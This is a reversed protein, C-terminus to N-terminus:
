VDARGTHLSKHGRNKFFMLAGLVSTIFWLLMSALDVWVANKMRMIGGNGEPDENIYMRGFLGFLAASLISPFICVDAPARGQCFCDLEFVSM